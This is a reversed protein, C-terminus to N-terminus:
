RHTRAGARASRRRHHEKWQDQEAQGQPGPRVGPARGEQGTSFENKISVIFGCSRVQSAEAIWSGGIRCTRGEQTNTLLPHGSRGDGERSGQFPRRQPRGIDWRRRINRTSQSPVLWSDRGTPVSRLLHCPTLHSCRKTVNDM